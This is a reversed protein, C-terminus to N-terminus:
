LRNWPIEEAEKAPLKGYKKNPWKTCQCTEFHTVEKQFSKVIVPWYLHQCIVAEARNMLLHLLYRHYWHLVYSQIIANIFIKDECTILKLYIHSGGCFYGKQYKGMKYKTLLRSDKRQYQNIPKLNILFVGEPLEKTDNIESM